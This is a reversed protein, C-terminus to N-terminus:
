SKMFIIVTKPNLIDFDVEWVFKRGALTLVLSTQPQGFVESTFM